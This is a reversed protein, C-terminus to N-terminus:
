FSSAVSTTHWWCIMLVTESAGKKLHASKWQCRGKHSVCAHMCAHFCGCLELGIFSEYSGLHTLPLKSWKWESERLAKMQAECFVNCLRVHGCCLLSPIEGWWRFIVNLQHCLLQQLIGSQCHFCDLSGLTAHIPGCLIPCMDSLTRSFDHGPLIFPTEWTTVSSV